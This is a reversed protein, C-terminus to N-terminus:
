GPGDTRLRLPSALRIHGHAQITLVGRRAAPLEERSFLFGEKCGPLGVRSTPKRAQLKAPWLAQEVRLLDTTRVWAPGSSSARLHQAWIRRYSSPRYRRTCGRLNSTRIRGSTSHCLFGRQYSLPLAARQYRAPRVNSGHGACQLVCQYSLQVSRRDVFGSAPPEIGGRHM